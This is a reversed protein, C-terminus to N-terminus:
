FVDGIPKRPYSLDFPDFAALTHTKVVIFHFGM